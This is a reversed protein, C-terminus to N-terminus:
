NLEPAQTEERQFFQPIDKDPIHQKYDLCYGGRYMKPIILQQKMIYDDWVKEDKITDIEMTYKDEIKPIMYTYFEYINLIYIHGHFHLRGHPSCELYVHGGCSKDPRFLKLLDAIVNITRNLSQKFHQESPNLSLSYEIGEKIDEMKLNCNRPKEFGM